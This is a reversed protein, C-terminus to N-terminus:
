WIINQKKIKKVVIKLADFENKNILILKTIKNNKKIKKIKSLFYLFIYIFVRM